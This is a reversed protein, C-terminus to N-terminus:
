IIPEGSNVIKLSPFLPVTQAINIFRQMIPLATYRMGAAGVM